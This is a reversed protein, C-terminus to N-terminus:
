SASGTEDLWANIHKATLEPDEQPLLHNTKPIEIAHVNAPLKKNNQNFQKSSYTNSHEARILLTPHTTKRLFKWMFEINRFIHSEWRPDFVLEFKGDEREFLGHQAYEELATKTFLKFTPHTSYREIFAARSPWVKRRTESGRMFPFIKFLAAKPLKRYILDIYPNPLSAAEIIVLKSFLEPRKLAAIMTVQGGHSHGMGIVPTQFQSSLGSILDDAFANMSFKEPPLQREVWAGRNEMGSITRTDRFQGLFSAYGAAPFGNAGSFHITETSDPKNNADMEFWPAIGSPHPYASNHISVTTKKM